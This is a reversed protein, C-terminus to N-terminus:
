YGPGGLDIVGEPWGPGVPYVMILPGWWPNKQPDDATSDTFRNHVQRAGLHEYFARQEEGTQFLAFPFCGRDVLRFAERVVARGLGRRRLDGRTVVGALALVTMDDSEMRITRPFVRAVSAPRGKSRVLFFCPRQEAPGQYTEGFRRWRRVAEDPDFDERPWELNHLVAIERVDTPAIEHDALNEVRAVAERGREDDTM